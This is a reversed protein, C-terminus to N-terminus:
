PWILKGNLSSATFSTLAFVEGGGPFGRWRRPPGISALESANAFYRAFPDAILAVPTPTGSLDLTSM